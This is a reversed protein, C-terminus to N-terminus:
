GEGGRDGPSEHEQGLKRAPGAGLSGACAGSGLRSIRASLRVLKAVGVDRRVHAVPEGDAVVRRRRGLNPERRLVRPWDLAGLLLGGPLGGRLRKAVGRVPRVTWTRAEFIPRGQRPERM